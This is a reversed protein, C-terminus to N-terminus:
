ALWVVGVVALDFEERYEVAKGLDEARGHVAEVGDLDLSDAVKRVFDVKKRVSDLLLAYAMPNMIKLVLGPFGAGTGVDVLSRWNDTGASLLCSLSDM